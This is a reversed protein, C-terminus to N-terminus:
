LFMFPHTNPSSGSSHAHPSPSLTIRLSLLSARLGKGCVKGQEDPQEDTAKIIFQYVSTFIERLETLLELLNILGSCLAM